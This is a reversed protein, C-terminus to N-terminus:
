FNNTLLAFLGTQFFCGFRFALYIVYPHSMCAVYSASICYQVVGNNRPCNKKRIWDYIVSPLLSDRNSQTAFKLQPAQIGVQSLLPFRIGLKFVRTKIPEIIVLVIRITEVTGYTSITPRSCLINKAVTPMSRTLISRSRQM